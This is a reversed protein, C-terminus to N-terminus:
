PYILNANMISANILGKKQKSAQHRRRLPDMQRPVDKSCIAFRRKM